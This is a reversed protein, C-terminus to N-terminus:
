SFRWYYEYLTEGQVSSFKDFLNYLRCEREQYSLKTGKMLLKVRDWIDKAAEQHNVLAYMHTSANFFQNIPQKFECDDNDISDLIMRSHKKGKIFLHICSAWSDYMSKELMPPRNEAGAVIIHEALTTM